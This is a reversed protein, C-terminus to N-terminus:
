GKKQPISLAAMNKLMNQKGLSNSLSIATGPRKAGRKQYGFGDLKRLVKNYFRSAKRQKKTIM